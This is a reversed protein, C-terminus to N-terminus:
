QRDVSVADAIIHPMADHNCGADAPSQGWHSPGVLFLTDASVRPGQVSAGRMTHFFDTPL